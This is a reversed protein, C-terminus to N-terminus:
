QLPVLFQQITLSNYYIITHLRRPSTEFSMPGSSFSDPTNAGNAAAVDVYARGSPLSTTDVAGTPFGWSYTGQNDVGAGPVLGRQTDPLLHYWKGDPTFVIAPSYVTTQTIAPDPCLFWAGVLM